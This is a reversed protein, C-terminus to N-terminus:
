LYRLRRVEADDHENYYSIAVHAGERAFALAFARGIGSDGEALTTYEDPARGRMGCISCGGRHVVPTSVTFLVALRNPM